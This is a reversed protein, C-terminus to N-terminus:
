ILYPLNSIFAPINDDVTYVHLIDACVTIFDFMSGDDDGVQRYADAEKVLYQLSSMTENSYQNIIDTIVPGPNSMAYLPRTNDICGDPFREYGSHCV